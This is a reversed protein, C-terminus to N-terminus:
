NATYLKGVGDKQYLRIYDIYHCAPLSQPSTSISVDSESVGPYFLHTNFIFFQPDHFGSMDEHKSFPKSLDYRANVTGDVTMIMEEPTWEFGYIHYEYNLTPSAEFRYVNEFDKLIGTSISTSVGPTKDPEYRKNYDFESPFWQILYSTKEYTKFIEYMDVEVMYDFNKRVGLSGEGQTWWSAWVGQSYPVRARIEAYGYVYNMKNQTVVSCPVRYEVDQKYKNFYSIAHMKLRGDNVDVVAKDTSVEVVENGAMKQILEWNSDDLGVGEFEDGWVYKYGDDLTSKFDTEISFTKAVNVEPALRIYKKVATDVTVNHGGDFVLKNGKVSVALNAENITVDTEQRNTKGIIIEKDAPKTDDTVISLEINFSDRYYDKLLKASNKASTNGKPVVIVYGDPGNWEVTEFDFLHDNDEYVVVDEKEPIPRHTSNSDSSNNVASSVGDGCGASLMLIFTALLLCILKRTIKM